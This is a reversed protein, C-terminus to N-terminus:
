PFDKNHSFAVNQAPILPKDQKQPKTKLIRKHHGGTGGGATSKVYGERSSGAGTSGTTASFSSIPSLKSSLSFDSLLGFM